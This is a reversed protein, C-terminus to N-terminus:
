YALHFLLKIIHGTATYLGSPWEAVECLAQARCTM